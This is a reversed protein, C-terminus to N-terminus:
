NQSKFHFLWNWTTKLRTSVDSSVVIRKAREHATRIEAHRARRKIAQMSSAVASEKFRLGEQRRNVVLTGDSVGGSAWLKGWWSPTEGEPKCLRWEKTETKGTLDGARLEKGVSLSSCICKAESEASQAFSDKRAGGSGIVKSSASAASPPAGASSRVNGGGYTSHLALYKRNDGILVRRTIWSNLPFLKAPARACRAVEGRRGANATNLAISDAIALATFRCPSWFILGWSTETVAVLPGTMFLGKKLARPLIFMQLLGVVWILTM